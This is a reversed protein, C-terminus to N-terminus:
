LCDSLIKHNKFSIYYWNYNHRYIYIKERKFSQIEIAILINSKLYFYVSVEVVWLFTALKSVHWLWILNWFNWM